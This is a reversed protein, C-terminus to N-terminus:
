SERAHHRGQHLSVLIHLGASLWAITNDSHHVYWSLQIEYPKLGKSTRAEHLCILPPNKPKITKQFTGNM